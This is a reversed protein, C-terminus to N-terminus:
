ESDCELPVRLRAAFGGHADPAADLSARAGYLWELRARLRALRTGPPTPPPAAGDDGVDIELSDRIVRAAIAITTRGVKPAAGHRVANEVLTQLAFSPVLADRAGEDIRADIALRDGFRLAELALYRQVFAWDDALPVRDRREEIAVRLTAALEEAARAATAPDEPILQVVTHMANFLFHPHLQARLAALQTRAAHAEMQATRQAASQAYSIGAIMVYMWVGLILFPVLGSGVVIVFDHRALSEVISQVLLWAAAYGFAAACHIAVFSLRMPHPWPLRAVVRQVALGLLAACLTMRLAPLAAYAFDADHATIILTTFLAWIPLWGVILQLWLARWM